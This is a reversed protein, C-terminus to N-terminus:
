RQAPSVAGGDRVAREIARASFSDTDTDLPYWIDYTVPQVARAPAPNKRHKRGPKDREILIAAALAYVAVAILCFAAPAAWAVWAPSSAVWDALGAHVVVPGADNLPPQYTFAGAPMSAVPSPAAAPATTTAWPRIWAAAGAALLFGTAVLAFGGWPGYGRPQEEQEQEEM